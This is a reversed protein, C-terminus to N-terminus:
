NMFDVTIAGMSCKLTVDGYNETSTDDSQSDKEFTIDGLTTNTSFNYNSKRGDLTLDLNGTSCKLTNSGTLKGTIETNGMATESNLNHINSVTNTKGLELNGVGVKATCHDTIQLNDIIGEGAGIKMNLIKSQLQTASLAGAGIKITTQEATLPTKIRCEGAALSIKAKDFTVDSPLTITYPSANATRHGFPINVTHDLITVNASANDPTEIHWIGDKIYSHYRNNENDNKTEIGYSAGSRIVVEQAQIDFDFGTIQSSEKDSLTMSGSETYAPAKSSTKPTLHFSFLTGGMQIGAIICLIGILFIGSLIFLFINRKKM